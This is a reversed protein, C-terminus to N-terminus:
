EATTTPLAADDEFLYLRCCYIKTKFNQWSSAFYILDYYSTYNETAFAECAERCKEIYNGVVGPSNLDHNANFTL